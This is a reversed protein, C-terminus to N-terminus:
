QFHIQVVGKDTVAKFNSKDAELVYGIQYGGVSTKDSEETIHLNIGTCNVRGFNSQTDFNGVFNIVQSKISGGTAQLNTNTNIDSKPELIMDMKGFGLQAKFDRYGTLLGHISGAKSQIDVSGYESDESMGGNFDIRGYENTLKLTDKALVNGTQIFGSQTSLNVETAKADHLLIRGFQSHINIDKKAILNTINIGSATTSMDFTNTHINRINMDGYHIIAHFYDMKYSIGNWELLGRDADMVFNPFYVEPVVIHVLVQARNHKKPLEQEKPSLVNVTFTQQDVTEYFKIYDLANKDNSQILYTVDIKQVNEFSVTVNCAAYGKCNMAFENITSPTIRFKSMRLNSLKFDAEPFSDLSVNDDIDFLVQNLTSNFPNWLTVGLALVALLALLWPLYNRKKEPLSRTLLPTTETM